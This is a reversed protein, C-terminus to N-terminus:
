VNLIRRQTLFDEWYGSCHSSCFLVGMDMMMMRMICIQRHNARYIHISGAKLLHMCLKTVINWEMVLYAYGERNSNGWLWRMGNRAFLVLWSSSWHEWATYFLAYLNTRIWHLRIKRAVYSSGWFKQLNNSIKCTTNDHQWDGKYSLSDTM